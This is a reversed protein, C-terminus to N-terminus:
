TRLFGDAEESIIREHEPSVEPAVFVRIKLRARTLTRVFDRQIYSVDKIYNVTYGGGEGRQLIRIEGEKMWNYIISWSPVTILIQSPDACRSNTAISRAWDSPIRLYAAEYDSTMAARAWRQMELPLRKMASPEIAEVSKLDLPVAFEKALRFTAGRMLDNLMRFRPTQPGSTALMLEIIQQDTLIALDEVAISGHAGGEHRFEDFAKGLMTEAVVKKHHEYCNLYMVDRSYLFHEIYPVASEDFALEIREVGNEVERFPVIREILADMNLAGASLGTMHADRALYDMRDVDLPSDVLDGIFAYWGRLGQKDAELLSIVEDPDVEADHIVQRLYQNIYKRSFELDPKITKKGSKGLGIHIDLAHSLPGHGLDHLLAAIQALKLFKTRDDDHLAISEPELRGRTYVQGKRFVKAMVVEANRCAGLSHALRTHTASRFTLYAFSLHRIHNLRQVIPQSLIKSLGSDLSLQRYVPDDEYGSLTPDSPTNGSWMAKAREIGASVGGVDQSRLARELGRKDSICRKLETLTSQVKRHVGDILLWLGSVATLGSLIKLGVVIWHVPRYQMSVLAFEPRSGFTWFAMAACLLALPPAFVEKWWDMEGQERVVASSEM